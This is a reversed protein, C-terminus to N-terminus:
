KSIIDTNKCADMFKRIETYVLQNKSTLKQKQDPKDTKESSGTLYYRIVAVEDNNHLALLQEAEAQTYSTQNLIIDVKEDAESM